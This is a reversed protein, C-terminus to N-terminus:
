QLYRQRTPAPTSATDSPTVSPILKGVATALHTDALHAYRMTVQLSKHRMLRNVTFIDVGSMVLRSAFTHRLDHWHFDEIKAAQCCRGRSPSTRRLPNDRPCFVRPARNCWSRPAAFGRREERGSVTASLM